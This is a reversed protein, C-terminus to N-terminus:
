LPEIFPAVDIARCDGLELAMPKEVIAHIRHEAATVVDSVDNQHPTAIYVADVTGSECLERANDFTSGGFRESFRERAQPNPDAAASLIVHPHGSLAPIM